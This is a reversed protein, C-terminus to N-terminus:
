LIGGVAHQVYDYSPGHQQTYTWESKREAAADLVDDHRPPIESMTAARLRRYLCLEPQRVGGGAAAWTRSRLALKKLRVPL